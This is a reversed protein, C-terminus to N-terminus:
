PRNSLTLGKRSAEAMQPKDKLSYAFFPSLFFRDLYFFPFFPEIRLNDGIRKAKTNDEKVEPVTPPWLNGQLPIRPPQVKLPQKQWCSRIWSALKFLISSIFPSIIPNIHDRRETV